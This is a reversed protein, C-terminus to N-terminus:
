FTRHLSWRNQKMYVISFHPHLQFKKSLKAKPPTYAKQKNHANLPDHLHHKLSHGGGDM